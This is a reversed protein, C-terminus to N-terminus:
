RYFDDDPLAGGVSEPNAAFLVELYGGLMTRMEEGDIFTINSLPIAKVAVPAAPVIGYSAVLDAAAPINENTWATSAEYDALFDALAAANTEAFDRRVLLVGTVLGSEPSVADWEETLSLAVRVDPNQSQVVTVYPQPLVAVADDAEALLVALETAESRFEVTLDTAPDLGNGTLIHNLVYEPSTGKGTSYVTRGALDAVSDVTEGTEVVYLVGLTNIAAVQVAGETRNYLVSALNAPVLAVDVGGQVVLPVVEDATGYMTVKYDHVTAGAEADSMLKVMGMTTPGKLSAIRITAPEAATMTAAPTTESPSSTTDPAPATTTCGAVLALTLLAVTRRITRLM